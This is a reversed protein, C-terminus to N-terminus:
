RTDGEESARGAVEFSHRWVGGDGNSVEMSWQGPTTRGSVHWTWSVIGAEDATASGLNKAQSPGSKYLISLDVVTGPETRVVLTAKRGPRAPNPELSVFSVEFPKGTQDDHPRSASPSGGIWVRERASERLVLRRGLFPVRMPLSYEAELTLYADARNAVDPLGVSAVDIRSLDLVRRDAFQTLLQGLALKAAQEELSFSVGSAQEAWESMPSPLQQGYRRLTDAVSLWKGNWQEIQRNLESDRAKDAALAIPYWAAAAQRVTQSLAGHLAMSIVATQVLFILFMVFLLFIPMALASELTVSGSASEALRQRNSILTIQRMRRKM